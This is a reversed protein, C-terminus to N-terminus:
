NIYPTLIREDDAFVSQWGGQINEFQSEQPTKRCCLVEGNSNSSVAYWGEEIQLELIKEMEMDPYPACQILESATVGVLKGTPLNIWKQPDTLEDVMQFECKHDGDPLLFVIMNGKNCFDRIKKSERDRVVKWDESPFDHKLQTEGDRDLLIDMSYLLERDVESIYREDMLVLGSPGDCEILLNM